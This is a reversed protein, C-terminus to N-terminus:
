PHIVYKAPSCWSAEIDLAWTTSYDGRRGDRSQRGIMAFINETSKEIHGDDVIGARFMSKLECLPICVYPRSYSREENMDIVMM